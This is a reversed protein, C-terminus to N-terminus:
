GIAATSERHTWMLDLMAALDDALQQMIQPDSEKQVGFASQAAHAIQYRRPLPQTRNESVRNARWSITSPSTRM